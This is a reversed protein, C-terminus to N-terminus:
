PRSALAYLPELAWEYLRRREQIVDAEALMGPQLMQRGSGTNLFQTDPAVTLRYFPTGRDVPQGRSSLLESLERLQESSLSTRSIEIVRGKQVGYLEYPYAEYRIAVEDNCKVFGIAKSPVYLYLHFPVGNRIISALPVSNEVYDGVHPAIATVVGSVPARILLIRKGESESYNALATQLQRALDSVNSDTKIPIDALDTEISSADRLLANREGELSSLKGRQDLYEALRAQVEADSVYQQAQMQKYRTYMEYSVRVREEQTSVEDATNKIQLRITTLRRKLGVEDQSRLKKTEQIQSSLITSQRRYSESIAEQSPGMSSNKDGSIIFLVDGPGVMQGERVLVKTVFGPQPVQIRVVGSTPVVQGIVTSKKTYTGWYAVCGISVLVVIALCAMLKFALSNVFIIEGLWNTQQALVAEERFLSDPSTKGERKTDM